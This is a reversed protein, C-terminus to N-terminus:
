DNNIRVITVSSGILIVSLTLPAIVFSWLLENLDYHRAIVMGLWPGLPILLFMFWGLLVNRLIDM